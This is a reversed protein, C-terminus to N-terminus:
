ESVDDFADIRAASIAKRRDTELAVIPKGPTRKWLGSIKERLEKPLKGEAASVSIMKEEFLDEYKVGIDTLTKIIQGPPVAWDRSGRGEVLKLGRVPIGVQARRNTEAEIANAWSKFLPILQWLMVLQDDTLREPMEPISSELLVPGGIVRIPTELNDFAASAYDFMRQAAAPCTPKASCFQCAKQSPSYPPNPEQSVLLKVRVDELFHTLEDTTMDVDRCGGNRPQNIGLRVIEIEGHYLDHVKELAGGAYLATQVNDQADVRVGRGHKYDPVYMVNGSVIIVDATGFQDPIPTWTSVDVREEVFMVPTRGAEREIDLFAEIKGVSEMVADVMEDTIEIQFEGCIVTEGVQDYPNWLPESLAREHISHAVTGEASAFTDKGSEHLRYSGPCLVIRAASSPGYPAHQLPEIV